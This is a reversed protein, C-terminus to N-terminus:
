RYLTLPLRAQYMGPGASRAPRDRGPFHSFTSRAVPISGAHGAQFAVSASQGIMWDTATPLSYLMEVGDDRRKQYFIPYFIAAIQLGHLSTCRLGTRHVRIGYM